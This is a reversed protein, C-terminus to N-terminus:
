WGGVCANLAGCSVDGFVWHYVKRNNKVMIGIPQIIEWQGNYRLCTGRAMNVNKELLVPLKERLRKGHAQSM